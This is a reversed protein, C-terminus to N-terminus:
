GEETGLEGLVEDLVDFSAGMGDAMGSQLVKDLIEPSGYAVIHQLLCGAEDAFFDTTVRTEGGTWDEDFLETHVIRRGEVLEEFAGGMGLESGEPHKWVYRFRGGVRADVECVVLPMWAGMWRRLLAPELHARYVLAPPAAFRRTFRLETDSHRQIDLPFLGAPM